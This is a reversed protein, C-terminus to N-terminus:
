KLLRKSSLDHSLKEELEGTGVPATADYMYCAHHMYLHTVTMQYVCILTFLLILVPFKETPNYLLTYHSVIVISISYCRYNTISELGIWQDYLVHSICLGGISLEM